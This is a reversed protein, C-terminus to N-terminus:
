KSVTVDINLTTVNNNVTFIWDDSLINNILPKYWSFFIASIIMNPM